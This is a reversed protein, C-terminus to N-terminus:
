YFVSVTNQCGSACVRLFYQKKSPKALSVPIPPLPPRSADSRVVIIDGGSM